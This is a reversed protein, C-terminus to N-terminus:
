ASKTIDSLDHVRLSLAFVKLLSNAPLRYGQCLGAPLLQGAVRRHKAPKKKLYCGSYVQSVLSNFECRNISNELLLKLYNTQATFLQNIARDNDPIIVRMFWM